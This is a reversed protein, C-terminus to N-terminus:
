QGTALDADHLVAPTPRGAAAAFEADAQAEALTRRSLMVYDGFPLQALETALQASRDARHQHYTRLSAYQEGALQRGAAKRRLDDHQRDLAELILQRDDARLAYYSM